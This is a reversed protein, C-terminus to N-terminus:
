RARTPPCRTFQRTTPALFRDAMFFAPVLGAKLHAGGTPAADAM